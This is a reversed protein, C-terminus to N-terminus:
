TLSLLLKGRAWLNSDDFESTLEDDKFHVKRRETLEGDEEEEELCKEIAETQERTHGTDEHKDLEVLAEGFGGTAVANSMAVVPTGAAGSLRSQLLSCM